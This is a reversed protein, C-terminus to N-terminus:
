RPTMSREVQRASAMRATTAGPAEANELLKLAPASLTVAVAFSDSANAHMVPFTRTLEVATVPLGSQV